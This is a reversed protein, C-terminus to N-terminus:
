KVIVAKRSITQGATKILIPYIGSAAVNDDGNRGKWTVTTTGVPMSGNYLSLIKRGTRDLVVVDVHSEALLTIPIELVEGVSPNFINKFAPVDVSRAGSPAKVTLVAERSEVSGSPNTVLCRFRANQDAASVAEVRYLADNAEPIDQGNRRWQYFTPLPNNVGVHFAAAGNEVAETNEPQLAIVPVLLEPQTIRQLDNSLTTTDTCIMPGNHQITPGLVIFGTNPPRHESQYCVLPVRANTQLTNGYFQTDISQNLGPALSIVRATPKFFANSNLGDVVIRATSRGIAEPERVSLFYPLPFTRLLRV